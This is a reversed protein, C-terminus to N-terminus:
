QFLTLPEASWFEPQQMGTIEPPWGVQQSTCSSKSLRHCRSDLEAGKCAQRLTNPSSRCFAVSQTAITSYTGSMFSRMDLPDIEFTHIQFLYIALQIVAGLLLGLYSAVSSGGM